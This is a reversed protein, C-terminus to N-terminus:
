RVADAAVDPLRVATLLLRDGDRTVVLLRERWAVAGLVPPEVPLEFAQWSAAGADLVEITTAPAMGDGDAVSGGALVLREGLATLFPSVRPAAPAPGSAWTGNTVDLVDIEAVPEFKERMGGVLWVTDGRVACGFARRSRPLRLETPVFADDSGARRLVDLQFWFADDGREPVYDIGGLLWQAGGAAVLGFQTRPSPLSAHAEHQRKAAAFRSSEALARGAGDRYGFGGLLTITRGAVIPVLSQRPLPLPAEATVALTRLDITAVDATFHQPEFDHQRRGCNGGFVHLRDGVLAFAQRNRAPHTWPLSWTQVHLSGRNVPVLECTALHEDSAGGIALLQGNPGPLLRHFFRPQALAAVTQWHDGALRWLDGDRGSVFLEGGACCAAVAFGYGPMEPLETWAGTRLDLANAASSMEGDADLGGLAYVVDGVAAVALARRRFPPEPLPQWGTGPAALDLALADTAWEREAGALRWGGAVIVRDGVVVADHSSRASPLPPLAAWAKTAPDFAAVEDTSWLDGAAGDNNRATMGGIRIVRGGHAVLAPSQLRPGQGMEIWEGGALDCALLTGVQNDRSHAHARGVHGGFVWCRTGDTCAGFSTLARPLTAPAPRAARPASADVAHQAPAMGVLLLAAPLLAIL